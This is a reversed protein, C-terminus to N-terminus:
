VAKILFQGVLWWKKKDHNPGYHNPVRFAAGGWYVRVRAGEHATLKYKHHPKLAPLTFVKFQEESTIVVRHAGSEPLPSVGREVQVCIM